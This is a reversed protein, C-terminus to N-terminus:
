WPENITTFTKYGMLACYYSCKHVMVQLFGKV